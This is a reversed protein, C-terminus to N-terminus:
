YLAGVGKPGYLKHATLSAFDLGLAHVDLAVKGAAQACDSHLPVGRERCLAGLAGIDEVVGTENNAHMLSVLVTDPRLAAALATAGIRGDHDPTPYTVTFGERGLQRCADLGSKHETRASVLHRGRPAAARAAGLVALNNSETAGSTFVIEGAQAGILAAVQ